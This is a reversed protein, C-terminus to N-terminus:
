AIHSKQVSYLDCTCYLIHTVRLSFFVSFNLNIHQSFLIEECKWQCEKVIVEKATRGQRESIWLIQLVSHNMWLFRCGLYDVSQASELLKMSYASHVHKVAAPSNLEPWSLRAYRWGLQLWFCKDSMKM